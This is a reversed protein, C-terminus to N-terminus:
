VGPLVDKAHHSLNIVQINAHRGFRFLDKMKTKLQKFAGADDLIVTKNELDKININELQLLDVFNQEHFATPDRGFVVCESKTQNLYHKLFSTKGSGSSGYVLLHCNTKSIAPTLEEEQQNTLHSFKFGKYQKLNNYLKKYHRPRIKSWYLSFMCLFIVGFLVM